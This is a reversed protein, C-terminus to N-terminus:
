MAMVHFLQNKLHLFIDQLQITKGYNLHYISQSTEKKFFAISNLTNPIYNPQINHKFRPDRVKCNPDDLM